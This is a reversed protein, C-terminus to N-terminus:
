PPPCQRAPRRSLAPFSGVISDNSCWFFASFPGARLPSIAARALDRNPPKDRRPMSQFLSSFQKFPKLSNFGVSAPSNLVQLTNGTIYNGDLGRKTPISFGSNSVIAAVCVCETQNIAGKKQLQQQMTSIRPFPLLQIFICVCATPRARPNITCCCCHPPCDMYM